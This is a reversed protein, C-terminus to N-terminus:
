NCRQSSYVDKVGSFQVLFEAARNLIESINLQKQEILKHNLYIQQEFHAEVWQGEGYIAALYLNLLASCREIHFEGGPIKYQPPDVPDADAYGTSTIFFLTNNLGVKRDILELLEAISNDLRVYTDQMEMPLEAPAKHDYNGAYYALSLFDPVADKGISTNSFCANVLRNVEDNAYPSTKM